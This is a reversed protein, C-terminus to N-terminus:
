GREGPRDRELMPSLAATRAADRHPWARDGDPRAAAPAGSQRGARDRPDRLRGSGTRRGRARGEDLAVEVQRALLREWRVTTEAIADRVPGDRGDFDAAAQTLFCGGPFVGATLYALWSDILAHLRPLGEAARAAPEWVAQRFRDSAASLAELQLAQKSGFPGILGAKSMELREALRGITIGELGSLSAEDVAENVILTRNHLAAERSARPM